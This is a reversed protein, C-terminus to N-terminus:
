NKMFSQSLIIEKVIAKLRYGDKATKEVIKDVTITEAPALRRSLAFRLLHATFAKAFRKEEKVISAKFEVIGKFNYKKMMTGSPDVARNNEYKHL